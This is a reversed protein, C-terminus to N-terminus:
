SAIAGFLLKIAVNLPIAILLAMGIQAWQRDRHAYLVVGAVGAFFAFIWFIFWISLLLGFAMM